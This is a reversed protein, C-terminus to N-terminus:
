PSQLDSEEWRWDRGTPEPSDLVADLPELDRYEPGVGDDHEYAPPSPPVDQYVPPAENDWSIGLGPFDTLKINYHMRLIRGTGTQSTLHPKSVPACEKSVVLEVMLAHSVATGDRSRTDCAYGPRSASLMAPSLGFEFEMDVRGDTGTYESKWGTHLHKEGLIRTETRVVGKSQADADAAGAALRPMHKSCAPAVTKITEQLKWTVKRLKWYEVRRGDAIVTTLGDLRVTMNQGSAAPHIIRNYSAAAKINTPPFIRISQHPNDPRLLSRKVEFVRDFRLPPPPPPASPNQNLAFVADARFDYSISVLPTDMTIPLHGDLLISFPFAHRGRRLTTPPIGDGSTLFVWHKLDTYQDTCDACNSAFPRKQRVHIRLSATFSEVDLADDKVHLFLQGSVLAGTSANPEGYFIIPPSEIEWDLSARPDERREKSRGFPLSLRRTHSSSSDHQQKIREKRDKVKKRRERGRRESRSNNAPVPTPEYM